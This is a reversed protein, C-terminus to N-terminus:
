QRPPYAGQTAVCWSMALFPNRVFVPQNGGAITSGLTTLTGGNAYLGGNQAQALIRGDAPAAHTAPSVSAIQQHTHIPLNNNTLTVTEAGGSEGWDVPSLGPGQGLVGAGVPARGQLNPLQYNVSGNGGYATGLLSFLATNQAIAMLQGAANTWNRPCFNFAFLRVEAVFPSEQAQASPGSAAAWAAITLLGVHRFIRRLGHPPLHPLPM